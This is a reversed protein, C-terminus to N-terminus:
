AGGTRPCATMPWPCACIRPEGKRVFLQRRGPLRHSVGSLGFRHRFLARCLFPAATIMSTTATSPTPRLPPTPSIGPRWPTPQRANAWNNGSDGVILSPTGSTSTTPYGGFLAGTGKSTASKVVPSSPYGSTSEGEYGAYLSGPGRRPHRRRRGLKYNTFAASGGHANYNGRRHRGPWPRPKRRCACFSTSSAAWPTAGYLASGPRPDSRHPRHRGGPHFELHRRRFLGRQLSHRGGPYPASPRPRGRMTVTSSASPGARRAFAAHLRRKTALADTPRHAHEREM